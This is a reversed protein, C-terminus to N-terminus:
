LQINALSPILVPYQPELTREMNLLLELWRPAPLLFLNTSPPVPTSTSNVKLASVMLSVLISSIRSVPVMVSISPSEM